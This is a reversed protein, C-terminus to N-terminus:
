KKKLTLAVMRGLTDLGEFVQPNEMQRLMFGIFPPWKLTEGPLAGTLRLILIVKNSDFKGSYDEIKFSILNNDVSLSVASGKFEITGIMLEVYNHDTVKINWLGDFYNPATERKLNEFQRKLSIVEAEKDAYKKKDLTQKEIIDELAKARDNYSNTLAILESAPVKADKNIHLNWKTGWKVSLTQVANFGARIFPYIVTYFLAGYFPWELGHQM